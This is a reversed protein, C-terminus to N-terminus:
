SIKNLTELEIEIKKKEKKKEPPNESSHRGLLINIEHPDRM